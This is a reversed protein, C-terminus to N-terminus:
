FTWDSFLKRRFNRLDESRMEVSGNELEVLKDVMAKLRLALIRAVNFMVKLAATDNDRIRERLTEFQLGWVKVDTVARVSAVRPEDTLLEMEGFVAGPELEALIQECGADICVRLRGQLLFFVKTGRDGRTIIETGVAFSEEQCAATFNSIQTSNLGKFVPFDQIEM